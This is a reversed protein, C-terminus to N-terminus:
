APLQLTPQLKAATVSGMVSTLSLCFKDSVYRKLHNWKTKFVGRDRELLSHRLLDEDSVELLECRYIQVVDDHEAAIPRGVEAVQCENEFSQLLM